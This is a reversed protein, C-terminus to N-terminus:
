ILPKIIIEIFYCHSHFIYWRVCMLVYNLMVMYLDIYETNLRKLSHECANIVNQYSLNEPSVKTAIFAESRRGRVAKGVLKETHGDGYAEATDIFTLGLDLGLRITDIGSIDCSKESSFRGGIGWTGQGIASVLPGNKGLPRQIM